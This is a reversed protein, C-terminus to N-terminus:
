KGQGRAKERGGEQRGGIRRGMRRGGVSTSDDGLIEPRLIEETITL